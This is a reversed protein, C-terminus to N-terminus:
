RRDSLTSLRGAGRHGAGGGPDAGHGEDSAEAYLRAPVNREAGEGGAARAVLGALPPGVAGAQSPDTNHCAICHALYVQRGGSPVRRSAARRAAASPSPWRPAGGSARGERSTAWSAGRRRTRSSRARTSTRTSSSWRPRAPLRQLLSARRPRCPSASRFPGREAQRQGDSHGAEFDGVLHRSGIPRLERLQAHPHRAARDLVPAQDGRSRSLEIM